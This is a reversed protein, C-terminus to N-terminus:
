GIVGVQCVAGIASNLFILMSLSLPQMWFCLCLSYESLPLSLFQSVGSMGDLNSEGSGSCRSWSEFFDVYLSLPQMRLPQDFVNFWEESKPVTVTDSQVIWQESYLLNTSLAVYQNVAWQKLCDCHRSACCVSESSVTQSLRRTELASVPQNVFCCVSDSSKTQSLWLQGTVHFDLRVICANNTNQHRFEKEGSSAIWHARKDPYHDISPWIHQATLKSPRKFLQQLTSLFLSHLFFSFLLSFLIWNWPFLQTTM